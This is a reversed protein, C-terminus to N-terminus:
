DRPRGEYEILTWRGFERVSAAEEPPNLSLIHASEFARMYVFVRKGPLPLNRIDTDDGFHAAHRADRKAYHLEGVWMVAKDIWRGTYFPVAHLYTGYAYIADGPRYREAISRSLARSSLLDTSGRIEGETGKLKRANAISRDCLEVAEYNAYVRVAKQAAQLFSDSARAFDRAAEYLIGLEGAVASLDEGHRGSLARAVAASLKARRAPTLTEYLANQYLAHVFGYRLTLSGDPMEQEGLRRVFAHVRDLKELNEEVDAEEAETVESVVSAHFEAGQVSAAILLGRDRRM